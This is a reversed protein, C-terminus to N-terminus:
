REHREQKWREYAADEDDHHDPEYDRWDADEIEWVPDFAGADIEAESDLRLGCVGLGRLARGGRHRILRM